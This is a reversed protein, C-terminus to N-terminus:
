DLIWSNNLTGASNQPITGSSIVSKIARHQIAAFHNPQELSSLQRRSTTIGRAPM